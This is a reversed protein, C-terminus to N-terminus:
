IARGRLLYPPARQLRPEPDIRVLICSAGRREFPRVERTFPDYSIPRYGMASLAKM